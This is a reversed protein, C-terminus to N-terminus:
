SFAANLVSNLNLLLKKKAKKKIHKIKNFKLNHVYCHSLGTEKVIIASAVGKRILQKALDIKEPPITSIFLSLNEESAKKRVNTESKNLNYAIQKTSLVGAKDELYKLEEQNWM